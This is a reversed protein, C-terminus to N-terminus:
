QNKSLYKESHKWLYEFEDSYLQYEPTGYEFVMRFDKNPSDNGYSYFKVNLAGTADGSVKYIRHFLPVSPIRVAVTEPYMCELEYWDSLCEDFGRYRRLRQKMSKTIENVTEARNALIRLKIKKDLIDNLIATKGSLERWQTGAHFAMDVCCDSQLTNMTAYFFGLTDSPIREKATGSSLRKTIKDQPMCSIIKDIMASLYEQSGSVGNMKELNRIEDPIKENWKSPWKFGDYM